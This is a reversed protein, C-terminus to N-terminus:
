YLVQQLLQFLYRAQIMFAKTKQIQSHNELVDKLDSFYLNRKGITMAIKDDLSIFRDKKSGYEKIAKNLLEDVKTIEETYSSDTTYPGSEVEANILM